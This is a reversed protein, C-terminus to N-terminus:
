GVVLFLSHELHVVKNWFSKMIALVEMAFASDDVKRVVRVLRVVVWVRWVMRRFGVVVGRAGEGERRWSGGGGGDIKALLVATGLKIFTSALHM